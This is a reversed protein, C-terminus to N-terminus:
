TAPPPILALWSPSPTAPRGPPGAPPPTKGGASSRSPRAPTRSPTGSPFETEHTLQPKAVPDTTHSPCWRPHQQREDVAQHSACISPMGPEAAGRLGPCAALAARGHGDTSDGVTDGSRRLQARRGDYSHM